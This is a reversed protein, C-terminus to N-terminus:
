SSTLAPPMKEVVSEVVACGTPTLREAGFLVVVRRPAMVPPMALAAALTEPSVEPARYVDLNFDRTAPDVAAEVLTRAADDRLRTADGHFFFVGEVEGSDVVERLRRDAPLSV